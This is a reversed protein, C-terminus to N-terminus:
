PQLSQPLTAESVLIFGLVALEHNKKASWCDIFWIRILYQGIAVTKDTEPLLFRHSPSSEPLFTWSCPQTLAANVNWTNHYKTGKTDKVSDSQVNAPVTQPVAAFPQLGASAPGVFIDKSPLALMVQLLSTRANVFSHITPYNSMITPCYRAM